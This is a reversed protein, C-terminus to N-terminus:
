PGQAVRLQATSEAAIRASDRWGPPTIPLAYTRELRVYVTGDNVRLQLATDAPLAAAALRQAEVPDIPVDSDVGSM